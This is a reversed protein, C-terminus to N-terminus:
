ARGGKVSLVAVVFARLDRHRAQVTEGRGLQVARSVPGGSAVIRPATPLQQTAM